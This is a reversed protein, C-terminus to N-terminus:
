HNIIISCAFSFSYYHSLFYTICLCKEWINVNTGSITRLYIMLKCQKTYVSIVDSKIVLKCEILFKVCIWGQSLVMTLTPMKM